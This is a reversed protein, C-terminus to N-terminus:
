QKQERFGLRFEAGKGPEGFAEIKGGHREMIRKCLALGVGSGEFEEETHLRQFVSFLKDIYKMDFGVGNDKISIVTYGEAYEAKIDIVADSRNRTFKFANSMINKIVSQVLVSDGYIKPLKQMNLEIKREPELSRLEAFQGAIIKEINLKEINPVINCMRSFELLRETMTVTQRCKSKLMELIKLPDGGANEGLESQLTDALMEIVNLPSRLDHSVASVFMELESNASALAKTKRSIELHTRIRAVYEERFFPKVVYDRCGAEFGKRLVDRSGESTVFIIPIDATEPSSHIMGCLELGNMGEMKIDLVILDPTAKKLFNLAAEGSTVAHVRYGEKKLIAGAYAIHEPLDDVILIEAQEM